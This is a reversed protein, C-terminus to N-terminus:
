KKNKNNKLERLWTRKEILYKKYVLSTFKGVGYLVTGFLFPVIFLCFVAGVDPLEEGHRIFWNTITDLQFVLVAALILSLCLAMFVFFRDNFSQKISLDKKLEYRTFGVVVMVLMEVFM